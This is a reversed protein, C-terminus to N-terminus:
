RRICAWVSNAALGISLIFYSSVLSGNWIPLLSTNIVFLVLLIILLFNSSSINLKKKLWCLIPYVVCSLLFYFANLFVGDSDPNMERAAGLCLSIFVIEVALLAIGSLYRRKSVPSVEKQSYTQVPMGCSRCFKAEDPNLTGCKNCYM